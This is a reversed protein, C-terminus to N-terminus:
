FYPGTIRKELYYKPLDEACVVFLYLRPHDQRFWEQTKLWECYPYDALFCPAEMGKYRGFPVIANMVEYHIEPLDGGPPKTTKM